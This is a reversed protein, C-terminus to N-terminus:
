IELDNRVLIVHGSVRQSWSQFNQNVCHNWHSVVLMCSNQGYKKCSAVLASPWMVFIVLSEEPEFHSGEGEFVPTMGGLKSWIEM